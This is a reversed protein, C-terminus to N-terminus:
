FWHFYYYNLFFTLFLIFVVVFASVAVIDLEDSILFRRRKM